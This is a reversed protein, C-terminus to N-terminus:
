SVAAPTGQRRIQLVILLAAAIIAPGHVMPTTVLCAIAVAISLAREGPNLPGGIAHGALAGGMLWIAASLRVVISLLLYWSTLSGWEFDIVLSLHPEYIFVFPIAFAISSLRLAQIGASLPGTGAIPAAAFAAIAVPPTVSSLVAYYLIFLHVLLIANGLKVIAPGILLAVLLYSPLTPLGMGLVLSAIMAVFLSLFLSGEAVTSIAAAFRFGLSTENVVGLIIGIAAVAIMIKAATYGGEVLGDALHLLRARLGHWSKERATVIALEGAYLALHVYIAVLGAYAPSRGAFMAYILAAMPLFFKLSLLADITGFQERDAKPIPEIGCRLSEFFVQVFISAYYFVAPLLAALCILLYPTATLDAMVFAAAAMIPPTIQGGSSASAEVGAAFAAPFGRRKIMPITFVGTGVVNAVSSGSITGFLSSAVIAAHAPGGRIGGTLSNALKLLVADTRTGRLLGGFVLFILVISSVISTPRGFIGDFSFWVTRILDEAQVGAHRFISPWAHGTLAYLLSILTVIALPLGFARRTLEVILAVGVYGIIVQNTELEFLGDWFSDYIEVLMWLAYIFAALLGVAIIRNILRFRTPRGCIEYILVIIGAIAISGIRQEGDDFTVFGVGIIILLSFIFALVRPFVTWITDEHAVEDVAPGQAKTM